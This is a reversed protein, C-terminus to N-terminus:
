NEHADYHKNRSQHAVGYLSKPAEAQGFVSVFLVM